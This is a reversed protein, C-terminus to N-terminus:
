RSGMIKGTDSVRTPPQPNRQRSLRRSGRSGRAADWGGCCCYWCSPLFNGRGKILRKNIGDARNFALHWLLDNLARPMLLPPSPTLGPTIAEVVVFPEVREPHDVIM